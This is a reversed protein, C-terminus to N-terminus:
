FPVSTIAAIISTNLIVSSLSAIRAKSVTLAASAELALPCVLGSKANM